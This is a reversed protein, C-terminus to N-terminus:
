EGNRSMKVACEVLTNVKACDEMKFKKLIERAFKEQNMFIRDKGQKIEIGLYYSMLDIDKMEFGKIMAQKFDEFM